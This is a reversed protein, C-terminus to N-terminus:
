SGNSAKKILAILSPVLRRYQSNEFSSDPEDTLIRGALGHCVVEILLVLQNTPIPPKIGEEKMTRKLLNLGRELGEKAEQLAVESPHYYQLPHEFVLRYLEPYDKAFLLFSEVIKECIEEFSNARDLEEFIETQFIRAGRQFLADYIAARGDFYEYLSPPQVGVRRAVEQLNLGNVGKERIVDQSHDLIENMREARDRARRERLSPALRRKSKSESVM